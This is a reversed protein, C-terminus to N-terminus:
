AASAQPPNMQEKVLKRLEAISFRTKLLVQNAGMAIAQQTIEDTTTVSFIIVPIGATQPDLKLTRLVELGNMGPMVLDLLMLQPKSRAIMELAQPGTVAAIATFGDSHLARCIVRLFSKDDDVVLVHGM